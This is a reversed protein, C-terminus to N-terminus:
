FGLFGLLLGIVSSGLLSAIAELPLTSMNKIEALEGNIENLKSRLYDMQISLQDINIEPAAESWNYQELAEIISNLKRELWMKEKEKSELLERKIRSLTMFGPIEVLLLVVIFAAITASLVLSAQEGGIGVQLLIIHYKDFLAIFTLILPITYVIILSNSMKLVDEFTNLKHMSSLAKWFAAALTIFIIIYCFSVMFISVFEINFGYTLLLLIAVLQPVLYFTIFNSKDLRPINKLLIEPKAEEGMYEEILRIELRAEGVIPLITSLLYSKTLLIWQLIVFIYFGSLALLTRWIITSPISYMTSIFVIFIIPSGVTLITMIDIFVGFRPSHRYYVIIKHIGRPVEVKYKIYNLYLVFSGLILLYAGLCLLIAERLPYYFSAIFFVLLSGLASILTPYMLWLNERLIAKDYQDILTIQTSQGREALSRALDYFRANHELSAKIPPKFRTTFEYGALYVKVADELDEASALQDGVKYILDLIMIGIKSFGYHNLYESLRWIYQQIVHPNVEAIKNLTMIYKVAKSPERLKNFLETILPEYNEREIFELIGVNTRIINLIIDEFKNMRLFNLFTEIYELFLSLNNNFIINLTTLAYHVIQDHYNASNKIIELIFESITKREIEGRENRITIIENLVKPERIVANAVANSLAIKLHTDGTTYFEEAFNTVYKAALRRSRRMLEAIYNVVIRKLLALNHAESYELLEELLEIISIRNGNFIKEFIKQPFAKFIIILADLANRADPPLRRDIKLQGDVFLNDNIIDILTSGFREFLISSTSLIKGLASIAYSKILRDDITVITKQRKSMFQGRSLAELVVIDEERDLIIKSTYVIEGIEKMIETIFRRLAERREEPAQIYEELTRKLMILLYRTFETIKTKYRTLVVQRLAAVISSKVEISIEEGYSIAKETFGAKELLSRFQSEELPYIVHMRMFLTVAAVRVRESSDSISRIVIDKFKLVYEPYNIIIHYIVKLAAVKKLELYDRTILINDCKRVIHDLLYPIYKITGEILRGIYFDSFRGDEAYWHKMIFIKETLPKLLTANNILTDGTFLIIGSNVRGCALEILLSSYLLPVHIYEQIKSIFGLMERRYNEQTLGTPERKVFLYAVRINGHVSEFIKRLSNFIIKFNEMIDRDTIRIRHLIGRWGLRRAVNITKTLYNLTNRYRSDEYIGIVIKPNILRILFVVPSWFDTANFILVDVAELNTESLKRTLRERFFELLVNIHIDLYDREAEDSRKKELETVIQNILADHM